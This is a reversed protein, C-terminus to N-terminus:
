VALNNGHYLMQEHVAKLKMIMCIKLINLKYEEYPSQSEIGFVGDALEALGAGHKRKIHEWAKREKQVSLAAEHALRKSELMATETANTEKLISQNKGRSQTSETRPIRESARPLEM